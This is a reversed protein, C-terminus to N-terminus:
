GLLKLKRNFRPHKKVHNIWKYSIESHLMLEYCQRAIKFESGTLLKCWYNIIRSKIGIELPYRGLEGYLM